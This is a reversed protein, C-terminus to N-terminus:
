QELSTSEAPVTTSRSVVTELLITLVTSLYHRGDVQRSAARFKTVLNSDLLVVFEKCYQLGLATRSFTAVAMQSVAERLPILVEEQCVLNTITEAKKSTPRTVFCDNSLNCIM